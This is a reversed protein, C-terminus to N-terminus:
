ATRHKEEAVFVRTIKAKDDKMGKIKRLRAYIYCGSVFESYKIDIDKFIYKPYMKEFIEKAGNEDHAIREARRKTFKSYAEYVKPKELNRSCAYRKSDRKQKTIYRAMGELGYDDPQLRRTQTRGGNKWLKEAIDRNNFNMVIHHHVRKRESYETVYIYKLPELNEKEIYRKLRRIYNQMDKKAQNEDNPLKDDSYTFTGWIGNNNFNTNILRIVRKVANKNNLNRQAKRSEKRTKDRISKKSTKWIPYIECELMPGSIITKTKYKIIDKCKLADAQQERTDLARELFLDQYNDVTYDM